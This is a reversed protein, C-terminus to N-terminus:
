FTHYVYLIASKIINQGLFSVYIIRKPTPTYKIIYFIDSFSAKGKIKM